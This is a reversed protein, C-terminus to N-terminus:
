GGVFYADAYGQNKVMSLLQRQESASGAPGALVRWFTKGKATSTVIKAPIGNAKLKAVNNHANDEVSFFGIQVFPKSIKATSPNPVPEPKTEAAKVSALVTNELATTDTPAPAAAIGDTTELNTGKLNGTDLSATQVQDLPKPEAPKEFAAANVKEKRLATVRLNSPTGAQVGLASAADSSLQLEPGPNNRERRFLAGIVFKDNAENRIIVREPQKASPHAVWVGGLSPRGDWLAAENVEFAEPAEVDREILKIPADSKAVDVPADAQKKSLNLSPFKGEECGALALAMLAIVGVRTVPNHM